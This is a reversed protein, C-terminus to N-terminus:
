NVELNLFLELLWFVEQLLMDVWRSSDTAFRGASFTRIETRTSKLRRRSRQRPSAHSVAVSSARVFAARRKTDTWYRPSAVTLYECSDVSSALVFAQPPWRWLRTAFTIQCHVDMSSSAVWNIWEVKAQNYIFFLQSILKFSCYSQIICSSFISVVFFSTSKWM